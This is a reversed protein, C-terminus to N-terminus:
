EGEALHPNTKFVDSYNREDALIEYDVKRRDDRVFVSDEEYDGFTNLSDLGVIDDVDEIIDGDEDTLVEDKYYTLSMTSYGIEGFEEPSIVYPREVNDVEKPTTAPQTNGSYNVYGQEQARKAYAMIDPKVHLGNVTEDHAEDEAEDDVYASEETDYDDARVYYEELDNLEAQVLDLKSKMYLWTALSGVAAGVVFVFANNKNM